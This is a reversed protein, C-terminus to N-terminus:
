MLWMHPEKQIMDKAVEGLNSIQPEDVEFKNILGNLYEAENDTQSLYSFEGYRQHYSV